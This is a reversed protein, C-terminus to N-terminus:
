EQSRPCPCMLKLANGWRRVDVRKPIHVDTLPKDVFACELANRVQATRQLSARQFPVFVPVQKTTTTTEVRGNIESQSTLKVTKM